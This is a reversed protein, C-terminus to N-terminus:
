RRLERFARPLAEIVDSAILSREGITEAALDGARGHLHVALRAASFADHEPMARTVALLATLIGSLVDGSGATALGPNGTSNVASRAGAVVVTERGKLCVIAGSREALERAAARRGEPDRPVDRALLRAAEGPHPTLVVVSSTSRARVREPEGALANLADADLVLPLGAVLESALLGALVNRTRADDGCGCGFLVAQPGRALLRAAPGNDSARTAGEPEFLGIFDGLVAEPAAVAVAAFLEADLCGIEVLGAGSRQAARAVLVAAGPMTRSGVICLVRGADGKHADPALAALRPIESDSAM